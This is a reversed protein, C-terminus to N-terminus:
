EATEDRLRARLCEDLETIQKRMWAVETELERVRKELPTEYTAQIKQWETRIAGTSDWDRM